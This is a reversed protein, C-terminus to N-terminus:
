CPPEECEDGAWLDNEFGMADLARSLALMADDLSRCIAAASRAHDISLGDSIMNAADRAFCASCFASVLYASTRSDNM